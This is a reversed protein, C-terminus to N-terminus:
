LFSYFVLSASANSGPKKGSAANKDPQELPTSMHPPLPTMHVNENILKSMQGETSKLAVEKEDAFKQMSSVHENNKEQYSQSRMLKLLNEKEINLFQIKSLLSKMENSM